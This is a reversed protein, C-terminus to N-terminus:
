KKSELSAVITKKLLAAKQMINTPMQEVDPKYYELLSDISAKYNKAIKQVSLAAIKEAEGTDTTKIVGQSEADKIRQLTEPTIIPDNVPSQTTTNVNTTENETEGAAPDVDYAISLSDVGTGEHHNISVISPKEVKPKVNKALQVNKKKLSVTNKSVPPQTGFGQMAGAGVPNISSETNVGFQIVKNRLEIGKQANFSSVADAIGRKTAVANIDGAIHLANAKEFATLLYDEIEKWNQNM